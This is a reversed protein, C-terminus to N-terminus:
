IKISYWGTEMLYTEVKKNLEVTFLFKQIEKKIDPSPIVRVKVDDLVKVDKETLENIFMKSEDVYFIVLESGPSHIVTSIIRDVINSKENDPPGAFGCDKLRELNRKTDFYENPFTKKALELRQTTKSVFYKTEKGTVPNIGKSGRFFVSTESEEAFFYVPLQHVRFEKEFDALTLHPYRKWFEILAPEQYRTFERTNYVKILKGYDPDKRWEDSSKVDKEQNNM